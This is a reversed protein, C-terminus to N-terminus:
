GVLFIFGSHSRTHWVRSGRFENYSVRDIIDSLSNLSHSYHMYVASARKSSSNGAVPPDLLPMSESHSHSSARHRSPRGDKNVYPGPVVNQNVPLM